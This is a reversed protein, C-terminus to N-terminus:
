QIFMWCGERVEKRYIGKTKPGGWGGDKTKKSAVNKSMSVYALYHQRFLKVQRWGRYNPWFLFSPATPNRLKRRAREKSVIVQYSPDKRRM